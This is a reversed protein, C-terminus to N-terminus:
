IARAQEINHQIVYIWLGLKNSTVNRSSSGMARNRYQSLLLQFYLLGSLASGTRKHVFFVASLSMDWSLYLM